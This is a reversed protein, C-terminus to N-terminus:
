RGEGRRAGHRHDLLGSTVLEMVSSHIRTTYGVLKQYVQLQHLREERSARSTPTAALLLPQHPCHRPFLLGRGGRDKNNSGFSMSCHWQRGKELRRTGSGDMKSSVTSDLVM